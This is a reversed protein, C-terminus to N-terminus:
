WGKSGDVFHGPRPVREIHNIIWRRHGQPWPLAQCRPAQCAM